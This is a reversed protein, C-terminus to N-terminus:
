EMSALERAKKLATGYTRFSDRYFLTGPAERTIRANLSVDNLEKPYFHYHEDSDHWAKDHCGVVPYGLDRLYRAVLCDSGNCYDYEINPDKTELWAILGKLSPQRISM